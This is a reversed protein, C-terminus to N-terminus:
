AHSCTSFSAANSLALYSFDRGRRPRPRQWVLFGGRSSLRRDSDLDAFLKVDLLARV